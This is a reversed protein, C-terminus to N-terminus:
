EHQYWVIVDGDEDRKSYMTKSYGISRWGVSPIEVAANNSLLLGAPKVMESLNLMALAQQLHSYYVFVNTAIVLDFKAAAPLDLHEVVINVNESSVRQVIAPKVDVARVTVPRAAEPVAVPESSNGILAGFAARYEVVRPMWEILPDLPLHVRYSAGQLAARRAAALHESVRPNLDFATADLDEARALGLRLLSDIVAFPQITQPPYFDHGEQKDAFDLGPGVIAVRSLRGKVIGSAQLRALAEELAFNVRLSTDSSLGRNRYLTSRAAFQLSADSLAEADRIMSAHTDGEEVIRKLLVLLRQRADGSGLVQRAFLMRENTGPNALAREFDDLRATVARTIRSADLDRSTIRPQTTFATGFLLLNVVSTEDGERVRARIARGTSEVWESWGARSPLPEGLAEFVPRAQEYSTSTRPHAVQAFTSTLLFLTVASTRGISSAVSWKM